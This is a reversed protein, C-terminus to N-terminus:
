EITNQQVQRAAYQIAGDAAYLRHSKAVEGSSLGFNASAYSLMVSVVVGFLVIFVLALILVSGKEDRRASRIRMLDQTKKPSHSRM